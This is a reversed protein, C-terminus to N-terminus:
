KRRRRQAFQDTQPNKQDIATPFIIRAELGKKQAMPHVSGELIRKNLSLLTRSMDRQKRIRLQGLIKWKRIREAFEDM